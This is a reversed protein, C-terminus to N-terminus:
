IHRSRSVLDAVWLIYEELTPEVGDYHFSAWRAKAQPDQSNMAERMAELMDLRMKSESVGHSKALEAIMRTTRKLEQESFM